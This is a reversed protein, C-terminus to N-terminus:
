LNDDFFQENSLFDQFNLAFNKLLQKLQLEFINILMIIKYMSKFKLDQNSEDFDRFNEFEKELKLNM